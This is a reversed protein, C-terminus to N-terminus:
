HLAICHSYIQKNSDADVFCVLYLLHAHADNVQELGAMLKMLHNSAQNM